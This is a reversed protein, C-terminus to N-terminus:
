ILSAQSTGAKAGYEKTGREELSTGSETELCLGKYLAFFAPQQIKCNSRCLDNEFLHSHSQTQNPGQFLDLLSLFFVRTLFVSQNRLLIRM